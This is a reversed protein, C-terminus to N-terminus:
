KVIIEEMTKRPRAKPEQNKYGVALCSVCELSVGTISKIEEKIHNTNAIWLSGLGIETAKLHMNEIFAGISLMDNDRSGNGSNDYFVIILCPVENIINATMEISIDSSKKSLLAEYVKDKMEKDLVMVKWPQRNHASPALIGFEIIKKIDELSVNENTYKRISRRNLLVDDFRM